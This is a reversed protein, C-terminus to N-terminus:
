FLNDFDDCIDGFPSYGASYDRKYGPPLVVVTNPGARPPYPYAGPYMPMQPQVPPYYPVAYPQPPPSPVAVPMLQPPGVPVAVYQKGDAGMYLPAPPLIQPGAKGQQKPYKKKDKPMGQKEGYYQQQQYQNKQLKPKEVPPKDYNQQQPYRNKPLKPNQVPPRQQPPPQRQYNGQPPERRRVNDAFPNPYEHFQSFKPYGVSEYNNNKNNQNEVESQTPYM